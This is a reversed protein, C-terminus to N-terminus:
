EGLRTSLRDPFDRYPEIRLTALLWFLAFIDSRAREFCWVCAMLFGGAIKWVTELFPIRPLGYGRDQM